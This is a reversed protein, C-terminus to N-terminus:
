DRLEVVALQAGQRRLQERVRRRRGATGRHISCIPSFISSTTPAATTLSATNSSARVTKSSLRWGSPSVIATPTSISRLRPPSALSTRSASDTSCTAPAIPGRSSQAVLRLQLESCSRGRCRQRASGRLSRGSLCSRPDVPRRRSRALALAPAGARRGFAPPRPASGSGASSDLPSRSLSRSSNRAEGWLCLDRGVAVFGPHGRQCDVKAGAVGVAIRQAPARHDDLRGM